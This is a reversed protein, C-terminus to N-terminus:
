QNSSSSLLHWKLDTLNKTLIMYLFKSPITTTPLQSQTLDSSAVFDTGFALARATGNDKVTIFLTQNNRFTGTPNNFLLSGAQATITIEIGRTDASAITYSTTFNTTTVVQTLLLKGYAIAASASIDADVITGDVIKASTVTSGGIVPNPYSGSLDGSASGGPVTGTITINSAATIRGKGDVTYAPVQTSSGYSGATVTTAALTPGPYSGTLDGSAAGNPPLAAPAGTINSYATTINTTTVGTVSGYRDTSLILATSSSGYTGATGTDRLYFNQGSSRLAGSVTYTTNLFQVFVINSTGITIPSPTTQTFAKGMNVSGNYVAVSANVMSTGTNDDISRTLVYAISATGQTTCLYIGNHTQDSEDKVLVRHNILVTQGDVTLVGVGNATLTAGVGGSGNNYTNAPLAAATAEQVLPKWALGVVYMDVYAKNAADLGNVPNLLNTIAHNNMSIDGTMTGGALPLKDGSSPLHANYYDYTVANKHTNSDQFHFSLPDVEVQLYRADTQTKTYYNGLTTYVAGIWTNVLSTTPYHLADPSSGINDKNAVNEPTFGLVNQKQSRINKTVTDAHFNTRFISSDAGAQSAVSDVWASDTPSLGAVGGTVQQWTSGNHYYWRGNSLYVTNTSDFHPNVLPVSAIKLQRAYVTLNFTDIASPGDFRFHQQGYGTFCILTFLITHIIKM